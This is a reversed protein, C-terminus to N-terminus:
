LFRVVNYSPGLVLNSSINWSLGLIEHLLYTWRMNEMFQEVSPYFFRGKNFETITQRLEYNTDFLYVRKLKAFENRVTINKIITNAKRVYMSNAKSSLDEGIPPITCLAVIADTKELIKRVIKILNSEYHDFSLTEKYSSKIKEKKKNRLFAKTDNTGILITVYDPNCYIINEINRHVDFSTISNVGANVVNWHYDKFPVMEKRLSHEIKDVYNASVTGHTISDGVCVLTCENKQKIWGMRGMFFAQPNVLPLKNARKIAWKWLAPLFVFKSVLSSSVILSLWVSPQSSHYGKWTVFM